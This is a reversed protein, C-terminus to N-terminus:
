CSRARIAWCTASRRMSKWLMERSTWLMFATVPHSSSHRIECWWGPFVPLHLLGRCCSATRFQYARFVWLATQALVNPEYARFMTSMFRCFNRSNDQMMALNGSGVLREIDPRASMRCNLEEALGDRSAEFEAAAPVSPQRLQNATELLYQMNM